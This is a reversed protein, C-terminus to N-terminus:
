KHNHCSFKVDASSASIDNELADVAAYVNYATATLHLLENRGRFFGHLLLMERYHFALPVTLDLDLDSRLWM